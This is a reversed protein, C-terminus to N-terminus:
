LYFFFINIASVFHLMLTCVFCVLLPWLAVLCALPSLLLFGVVRCLFTLGRFCVGM